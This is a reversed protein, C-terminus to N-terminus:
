RDQFCVMKWYSFYLLMPFEIPFFQNQLKNIYSAVDGDDYSTGWKDLNAVHIKGRWAVPDNYLDDTIELDLM